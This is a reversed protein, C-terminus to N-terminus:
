GKGLLHSADKQRDRHNARLKAGRTFPSTYAIGTFLADRVRTFEKVTHSSITRSDQDRKLAGCPSRECRKILPVLKRLRRFNKDLVYCAGNPLYVGPWKQNKWLPACVQVSSRAFPLYVDRDQLRRHKERLEDTKRAARDSRARVVALRVVYLPISKNEKKLHANM